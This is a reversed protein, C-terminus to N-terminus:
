ELVGLHRNLESELRKQGDAIEGMKQDILEAMSESLNQLIAKQLNAWQREAERRDFEAALNPPPPDTPTSAPEGESGGTGEHSPLTDGAGADDLASQAQTLELRLSEREEKLEQIEQKQEAVITELTQRWNDESPRRGEPEPTWGPSWVPSPALAQLYSRMSETLKETGVKGRDLYQRVAGPDAGQSVISWEVLETETFLIGRSQWTLDVVGEPLQPPRQQKMPVGKLADFGISAMHLVGEDVMAFVTAADPNSQSFFVTAVAKKKQKKVTYKGQKDKSLGIAPFQVGGFGHELLVVPNQEHRATIMGQGLKSETIQHANGHYNPKDTLIVFDASMASADVAQRHADAHTYDHRLGHLDLPQADPEILDLLDSM